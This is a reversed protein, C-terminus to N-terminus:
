ESAEFMHKLLISFVCAYLYLAANPPLFNVPHRGLDADSTPQITLTVKFGNLM